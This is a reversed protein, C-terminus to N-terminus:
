ASWSARCAPLSDATTWTHAMGGACCPRLSADCAASPTAHRCTHPVCRLFGPDSTIVDGPAVVLHSAVGREAEVAGDEAAHTVGIRVSMGGACGQFSCRTCSIREAGLSIRRNPLAGLNGRVRFAIRVFSAAAAAADVEEQWGDEGEGAMDSAFESRVRM